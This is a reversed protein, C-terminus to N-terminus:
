RCRTQYDRGLGWGVAIHCSKLNKAVVYPNASLRKSYDMFISLTVGVATRLTIHAKFQSIITALYTALRNVLGAMYM